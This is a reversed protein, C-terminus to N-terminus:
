RCRFPRTPLNSRLFSSSIATAPASNAIRTSASGSMTPTRQLFRTSITRNLADMRAIVIDMPSEAAVAAPALGLGVIALWAFRGTRRNM